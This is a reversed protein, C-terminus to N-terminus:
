KRGGDAPAEAPGVNPASGVHAEFAANFADNLDDDSVDEGAAKAELRFLLRSVKDHAGESTPEARYRYPTPKPKDEAAGSKRAVPKESGDTKNSM